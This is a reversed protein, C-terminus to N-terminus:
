HSIVQIKTTIRSNVLTQVAIGYIAFEEYM